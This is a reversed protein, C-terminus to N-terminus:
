RMIHLLWAPVVRDFTGRMNLLLLTAVNDKNQWTAHLQLVQFYLTTDISRGPGAGMQQAPFFDHKESLSLILQAIVNKVVKQVTYLLM